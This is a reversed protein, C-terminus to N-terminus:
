CGRTCRCCSPAPLANDCCGIPHRAATSVTFCCHRAGYVSGAIMLQRGDDHRQHGGSVQICNIYVTNKAEDLGQTFYEVYEKAKDVPAVAPLCSYLRLRLRSESM